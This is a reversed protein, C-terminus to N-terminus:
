KCPCAACRSFDGGRKGRRAHPEVGAATISRPVVSACRLTIPLTAVIAASASAAPSPLGASITTPATTCIAFRLSVASGCRREAYLLASSVSTFFIFSTITPLPM